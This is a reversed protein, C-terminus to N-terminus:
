TYGAPNRCKVGEEEEDRGSGVVCSRMVCERRRALACADLRGMPVLCVLIDLSIEKKWCLDFPSRRRGAAALPINDCSMFLARYPLRSFCTLPLFHLDAELYISYTAGGGENKRWPRM